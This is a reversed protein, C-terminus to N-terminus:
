KRKEVNFRQQTQKKKRKRSQVVEEVIQKFETKKKEGFKECKKKM